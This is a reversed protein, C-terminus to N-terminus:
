GLFKGSITITESNLNILVNDVGPILYTTIDTTFPVTWNYNVRTMASTELQDCVSDVLSQSSYVASVITARNRSNEDGREATYAKRTPSVYSLVCEGEAMYYDSVEQLVRKSKSTYTASIVGKRTPYFVRTSTTGGIIFNMDFACPPLYAFQRDTKTRGFVKSPDFWTSDTVFDSMDPAHHLSDATPPQTGQFFEADFVVGMMDIEDCYTVTRDAPWYPNEDERSAEDVYVNEQEELLPLKGTRVSAYHSAAIGLVCPIWPYNTLGLRDHKPVVEDGFERPEEEPWKWETITPEFGLDEADPNRELVREGPYQNCVVFLSNHLDYSTRNSFFMTKYLMYWSAPYISDWDREGQSNRPKGWTHPLSVEALDDDILKKYGDTLTWEPAELNYKGDQSIMINPRELGFPTKNTDLGFKYRTKAGWGRSTSPPLFRATHDFLTEGDIQRRWTHLADESIQSFYPKINGDWDEGVVYLCHSDWPGSYSYQGGESPELWEGEHEPDLENKTCLQKWTSDGDKYTGPWVEDLHDPVHAEDPVPDACPWGEATICHGGESYADPGEYDDMEWIPPETSYLTFKHYWKQWPVGPPFPQTYPCTITYNQNPSFILHPHSGPAVPWIHMYSAFNSNPNWAGISSAPHNIEDGIFFHEPRWFDGDSIHHWVRVDGVLITCIVAGQPVTPMVTDKLIYVGTGNKFFNPKEAYVKKQGDHINENMWAHLEEMDDFSLFYNNWNDIDYFSYAAIPRLSRWYSWEPILGSHDWLAEQVSRRPPVYEYRVLPEIDWFAIIFGTRQEPLSYGDPAWWLFWNQFDAPNVPKM